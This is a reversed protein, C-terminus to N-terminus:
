SLDRLQRDVEAEVDLVPEGRAARRENRAVVLQRVEERLAADQQDAEPQASPDLALLRGVEADVDLPPEGRAVGRDHRAQVLQRIEAEREAVAAPSNPAPAPRPPREDIAMEGRGLQELIGFAGAFLVAAIPAVVLVVIWIVTGFDM